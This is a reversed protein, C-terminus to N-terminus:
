RGVETEAPPCYPALRRGAERAAACAALQEATLARTPTPPVEVVTATPEVPAATAQVAAAEGSKATAAPLQAPQAIVADNIPRDITYNQLQNTPQTTIVPYRNNIFDVFLIGAVILAFILGIGIGTFLGAIAKNM